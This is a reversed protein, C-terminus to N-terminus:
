LVREARNCLGAPRPAEADRALGDGQEKNGDMERM